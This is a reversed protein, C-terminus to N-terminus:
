GITKELAQVAETPGILILVDGARIRETARPTAQMTGDAHRIAVVLVGHAEGVNLSSLADGVRPNTPTILVEELLVDGYTALTLLDLFSTAHPRVLEHAMRWGGMTYPSVTSSAGARTAKTAEPGDDVRTVITLNPNLERASLTVYVAEATADVAVALGKAREIGALRLVHDTAGDGVIVPFGQSAEAREVKVPDREIVCLPVGSAYLESAIAQGLRGYGVVIYHDRIQSMQLRRRRDRILTGLRGEVLLQTFASAAYAGIGVGTVIVGMTFLRGADSLPHVEGYGITTFTILVMWVSDLLSWGEIWMYGVTASVFVGVTLVVAIQLPRPLM